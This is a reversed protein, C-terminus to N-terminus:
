TDRAPTEASATILRDAPFRMTFIAGGDPNDDIEINGQHAEVTRKVIALGLGSGDGGQDARHFRQFVTERVHRPVGKGRNLVRVSGKADIDISVTTGPDSYRIANEVLNRAAQELADENAHLLVPEPCGTIEISRDVKVALPALHEAVRGCIKRIDAREEPGVELFGGKHFGRL